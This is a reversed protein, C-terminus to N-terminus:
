GLITENQAKKIYINLMFFTKLLFSIDNIFTIPSQLQKNLQKNKKKSLKNNQKMKIYLYYESKNM